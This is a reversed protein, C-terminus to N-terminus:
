YNENIYNTIQLHLRDYLEVGVSVGTNELMTLASIWQGALVENRVPILATEVAGHQAETIQGSLKALRFEASIEAYADGGDIQRKKYLETELQLANNMLNADIEETTASEYYETGNWKPLHFNGIYESAFVWDDVDNNDIFDQSYTNTPIENIIRTYNM